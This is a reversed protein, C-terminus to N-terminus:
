FPDFLLVGVGLVNQAHNYDILSEGYGSFIQVQGRLRQGMPYFWDAEISGRFDGLDANSRGRVVLAHRRRTWVLTSEMRGVYDTIGPNDDEASGAGTDIRAWGRLEISVKGHEIAAFGYVRNWSRSLPESRGNSQHVVGAGVVRWVWSRWSRRLPFSVIAEPEYNTERFPRSDRANYLQFHSQQTYGFWLDGPGGLMNQILVTKFSIQFKVEVPDLELDLDPGVEERQPFPKDNPSDSWRAPLMYNPRHAWPRFPRARDSLDWLRELQTEQRSRRAEAAVRDYCALREAEAAISGCDVIADEASGPAAAVPAVALLALGLGGLRRNAESRRM